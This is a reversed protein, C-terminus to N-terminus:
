PTVFESKEFADIVTNKIANSNTVIITSFIYNNILSNYLLM